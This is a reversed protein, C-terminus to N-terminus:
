WYYITFKSSCTRTYRKRIKKGLRQEMIGASSLWPEKERGEGGWMAFHKVFNVTQEDFNIFKSNLFHKLVYMCTGTCTCTCGCLYKQWIFKAICIWEWLSIPISNNIDHTSQFCCVEGTLSLSYMGNVPNMHDPILLCVHVNYVYLYM